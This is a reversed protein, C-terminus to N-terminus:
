LGLKDLDNIRHHWVWEIGAAREYELYNTDFYGSLYLAYRLSDGHERFLNAHKDAEEKRRKNVNTFDGASKCELLIPIDGTQAELPMIAMDVSVRVNSGDERKGLANMHVRYTGAKMEDYPRETDEDAEYGREALWTKLADLQRSEQTNRIDPNAISLALRDIMLTKARELEPQTPAEPRDIWPLLNPDYGAKITSIIKEILPTATAARRNGTRNNEMAKVLAPPTASIGILRDVAWTPSRTMRLGRIIEPNSWLIHFELQRLNDTVTLTKEVLRSAEVRARRYAEVTYRLYWDNYEAVSEQIDQEWGLEQGDM